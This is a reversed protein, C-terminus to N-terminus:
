PVDIQDRKKPFRVVQNFAGHVNMVGAGKRGVPRRTQPNPLAKVRRIM